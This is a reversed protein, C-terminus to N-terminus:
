VEPSLNPAELVGAGELSTETTGLSPINQLGCGVIFRQAVIGGRARSM